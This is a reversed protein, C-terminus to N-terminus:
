AHERDGDNWIEDAMVPDVRAEYYRIAARSVARVAAYNLAGGSVVGVFPILKALRERFFQAGMKEALVGGEISMSE